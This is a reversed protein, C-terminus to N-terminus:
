LSTKSSRKSSNQKANQKLLIGTSQGGMRGARSRAKRIKEDRVMRRSFLVGNGDVSPVGANLLEQTLRVAEEETCGALQSLQVPTLPHGPAQELFGRRVAKHAVCLCEMWFGRAAVSCIRLREDAQWDAPYFPFYPLKGTEITKPHQESM